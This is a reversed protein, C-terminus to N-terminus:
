ETVCLEPTLVMALGETLAMNPFVWYRGPLGWLTTAYEGVYIHALEHGLVAHPTNSQSIHIERHNPQAFHVNKAGTYLAKEEDNSHLWIIVPRDSIKGLKDKLRERYLLAEELINKTDELSTLNPNSYIIINHDAQKLTYNKILQEKNKGLAELSQTHLLVALASLLVFLVLYFGRSKSWFLDYGFRYTGVFYM